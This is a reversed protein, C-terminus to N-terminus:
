EKTNMFFSNLGYILFIPVISIFLTSCLAQATPHLPQMLEDFFKMFLHAKTLKCLYLVIKININDRDVHAPFLSEIDNYDISSSASKPDHSHDHHAHDHAHDHHDHAAHNHGHDHDDHSHDHAHEHHSHDHDHHHHDHDGSALVGFSTVDSQLVASLCFCPIIRKIM